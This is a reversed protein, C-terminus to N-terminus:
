IGEHTSAGTPEPTQRTSVIVDRTSAIRLGEASWAEPRVGDSVETSYNEKRVFSVGEKPKQKM